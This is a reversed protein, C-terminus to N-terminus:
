KQDEFVWNFYVSRRIFRQPVWYKMGHLVTDSNLLYFARNFEPNCYVFTNTDYDWAQTGCFPDNTLYVIIINKVISEDKHLNNVYFPHDQWLNCSFGQKRIEKQFIIRILDQIPDFIEPFANTDIELHERQTEHHVNFKLQLALDIDQKYIQNPQFDNFFKNFFGIQEQTLFNDVQGIGQGIVSDM